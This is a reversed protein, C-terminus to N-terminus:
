GCGICSGNPLGNDGCTGTAGNCSPDCWIDWTIDCVAHGMFQSNGFGVCVGDCSPCGNEAFCTLNPDSFAPIALGAALATMLALRKTESKM